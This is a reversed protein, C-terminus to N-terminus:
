KDKAPREAAIGFAVLSVGAFGLGLPFSVLALSVAIISTGTAQVITPLHKM